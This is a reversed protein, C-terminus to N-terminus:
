VKATKIKKSELIEEKKGCAGCEKLERHAKMTAPEREGLNEDSGAGSWEGWIKKPQLYAQKEKIELPYLGKQAFTKKWKYSALDQLL